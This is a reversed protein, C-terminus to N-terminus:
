LVVEVPPNLVEVLDLGEIIFVLPAELLGFNFLFGLVLPPIQYFFRDDEFLYISDFGLSVGLLVWCCELFDVVLFTLLAFVESM